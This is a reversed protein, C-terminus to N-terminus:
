GIFEIGTDRDGGDREPVSKAQITGRDNEIGGNDIIAERMKERHARLEFGTMKLRSAEVLDKQVNLMLENRKRSTVAFGANLLVRWAADTNLRNLIKVVLALDGNKLAMDIMAAEPQVISGSKIVPAVTENVAETESAGFIDLQM